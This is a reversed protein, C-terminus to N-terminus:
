HVNKVELLLFLSFLQERELNQNDGGILQCFGRQKIKNNIM